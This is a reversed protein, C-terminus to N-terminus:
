NRPSILRGVATRWGHNHIVRAEHLSGDLIEKKSLMSVNEWDSKLVYTANGLRHSELVYIGRQTFGFVVYDTFGGVGVAILDPEYRTITRIRDEVVPRATDPLDSLFKALERKAREFPYTGSPLVKWNLRRIQLRENPQLDKGVMEFRGFIELFLNVIHLIQEATVSSLSLSRSAVVPGQTAQLVTLYESPPPVQDKQYVKRTIVRIGSHPNGHWDNWSSHVTFTEDVKPLDKRVVLRGNANFDTFRGSPPPTLSEGEVAPTSFGLANIVNTDREILFILRFEGLRTMEKEYAALSRVSKSTAM